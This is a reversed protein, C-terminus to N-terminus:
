PTGGQCIDTEIEEPGFVVTVTRRLQDYLPHGDGKRTLANWIGHYYWAQERKTANFRKWVRDGLKNLDLQISQVNHLKDAAAILKVDIDDCGTLYDITHRKRECWSLSKDPESAAM